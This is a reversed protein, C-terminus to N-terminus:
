TTRQHGAPWTIALLGPAWALAWAGFQLVYNRGDSENMWLTGLVLAFAAGGLVAALGGRFLSESWSRAAARRLWRGDILALVIWVAVWAAVMAGYNMGRPGLAALAYYAAAGGVGAAVGAALGAIARGSIWGLVAGVSGLLVAGHIAGATPRHRIGIEFWVYDGVTAVAAVFLIGILPKM